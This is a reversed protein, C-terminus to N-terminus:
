LPVEAVQLGGARSFGPRAPAPQRTDGMAPKPRWPANGMGSGSAVKGGTYDRGAGTFKVVRHRDAPRNPAGRRVPAVPPRRRIPGRGGTGHRSDTPLRPGDTHYGRVPAPQGVPERAKCDPLNGWRGHRRTQVASGVRYAGGRRQGPHIRRGRVRDCGQRRNDPRRGGRERGSAFPRGLVVLDQRAGVGARLPPITGRAAGSDHASRDRGLRSAIANSSAARAIGGAQRLQLRRCNRRLGQRYRRRGVGLHERKASRRESRAASRGPGSPLESKLGWYGNWALQSGTFDLNSAWWSASDYLGFYGINQLGLGEM